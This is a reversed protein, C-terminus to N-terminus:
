RRRFILWAGWSIVALAAAGIWSWLSLSRQGPHNDRDAVGEAGAHTTIVNSKSESEPNLTGARNNDESQRSPPISVIKIIEDRAMDRIEETVTGGTSELGKALSRLVSAVAMRDPRDELAVTLSTIDMWGDPSFREIIQAAMGLAPSRSMDGNSYWNADDELYESVIIDRCKDPVADFNAFLMGRLNPNRLIQSVLSGTVDQNLHGRFDDRIALFTSNEHHIQLFRTYEESAGPTKADAIGSAVALCILVSILRVFPTKM